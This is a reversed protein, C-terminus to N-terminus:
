RGGGATPPGAAAPTQQPPMPQYAPFNRPMGPSGPVQDDPMNNKTLCSDSKPPHMTNYWWNVFWIAFGVGVVVAAVVPPIYEGQPDVFNLPDNLCYGYLDIDGGAFGIPDESMFRGVEPDYWRARYYYLGADADWERGTFTYTNGVAAQVQKMRGFATYRYQNLVNGGANVIQRISGLGDAIFYQSGGFGLPEDIGPGHVYTPAGVSGVRHIDEGLYAWRSQDRNECVRISHRRIILGGKARM